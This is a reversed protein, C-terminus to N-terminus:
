VCHAEGREEPNRFLSTVMAIKDPPGLVFLVDNATLQIDGYPSTLIQSDRRIALVTVEYKKRLQIQALSKGALPSRQGVRLVSVEVDPLQLKLDSFSASEKSLSRFMEYGDSRVEAVLKEIEDRPVLYKALVRSFIEVSTEFEEPIVETAGLEYLPKMEQLYRTRVIIHAKPNLRRSIETIRRTAAPDAIAVIVVMANKIHAHQLVPEQTADGYYVPEGKAQESRVTDPNMEIVVYPIGAARAVRAVNRGNV